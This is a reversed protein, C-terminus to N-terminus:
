DVKMDKLIDVMDGMEKKFREKESLNKELLDQVKTLKELKVKNKVTGLKFKIDKIWTSASYGSIKCPYNKATLDLAAASSTYAAEKAVIFSHMKILDEVTKCADVSYPFGDPAGKTTNSKPMDGTIAKIQQKVVALMDPVGEKTLEISDLTALGTEKIKKM